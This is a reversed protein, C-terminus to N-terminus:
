RAPPVDQELPAGRDPALHPEGASWSRLALVSCPAQEVLRAVASRHFLRARATAPHSEVVIMNAQVKRAIATLEDAANGVPTHITWRAGSGRVITECLRRLQWQASEMEAHETIHVARVPETLRVRLSEPRVVHVVHLDAEDATRVLDRASALLHESVDSLDVGVVVVARTTARTGEERM